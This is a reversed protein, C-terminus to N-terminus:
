VSPKTLVTPEEQQGHQIAVIASDAEQEFIWEQPAAPLVPSEAQRDQQGGRHVLLRIENRNLSKEPQQKDITVIVSDIGEKDAEQTTAVIASGSRYNEYRHDCQCQRNHQWPGAGQDRPENTRNGIAV